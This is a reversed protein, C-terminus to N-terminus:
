SEERVAPLLVTFTTKKGPLSSILIKGNHSEVISFCVSLGLGTGNEKTTFFPTGLKEMIEPLIGEGNNEVAVAIMHQQCTVLIAVEGGVPAAELANKVLNIFVQKIQSADGFLYCGAAPLQLDFAINKNYFQVKMLLLVDNILKCINIKEYQPNEKLPRALMQFENVLNEIRGIETIIIELHAPSAPKDKRRVMLQIFGKIATLPNKIEHAIGAALQNVCMMRELRLREVEQEHRKAQRWVGYFMGMCLAILLFTEANDLAKSLVIANLLDAPIAAAVRWQANDLGTYVFVKDTGDLPSSVALIGTRQAFLARLQQKLLPSEPFIDQLRPHYILQGSSDLVVMYQWESLNAKEVIAAIDGVPIYAVLVAVVKEGSFVPVQLSVYSSALNNGALRDSAHASGTLAEQLGGVPQGQCFLAKQQDFAAPCDSILRGSTDYLAINSVDLIKAAAILNPQAQEPNLSRIAAHAALLRLGVLRSNLHMDLDEAKAALQDQMTSVVVKYQYTFYNFILMTIVVLILAGMGRMAVKNKGYSFLM